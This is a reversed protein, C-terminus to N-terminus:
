SLQICQYKNNPIQAFIVAHLICLNHMLHSLNSHMHENDNKQSVRYIRMHNHDHINNLHKMNVTGNFMSFLSNFVYDGIEILM